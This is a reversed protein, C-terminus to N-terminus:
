QVVSEMIENLSLLNVNITGDRTLYFAAKASNTLINEFKESIAPSVVMCTDTFVRIGKKELEYILRSAKEDQSILKSTFIWVEIEDKIKANQTYENILQLDVLSTHPCGIAVLDAHDKIQNFHEYVKEKDEEAYVIKNEIETTKVTKAEPTKAEVHFLPVSGSAAIASSLMKAEDITFSSFSNFLPISDGFMEGYWYGLASFDSLTKTEAKVEVFTKPIRNEEKHMGYNATFGTIASALSSPGGERNTRAGFFSNAMSVASSESWALHDGFSPELGILYPTCTLTTEIGMEEYHKLIEFQKEAFITRVGMEKWRLRDMGAPNLWSPVKVKVKDSSLLDFFSFIADGVTHYSVGAIQASKIQILKDANNVVGIKIILNMMKAIANGKEGALLREQNKTLYM